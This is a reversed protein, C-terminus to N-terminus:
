RIESLLGEFYIIIIILCTKKLREKKRGNVLITAGAEGLGKALTFGLGQSSGTILTIKGSVDFLKNM